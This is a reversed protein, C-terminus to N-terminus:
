VEIGHGVAPKISKSFPSPPFVNLPLPESWTM